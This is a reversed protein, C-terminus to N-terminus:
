FGIVAKLLTVILSAGGAVIAWFASVRLKELEEVRRELDDMESRYIEKSTYINPIRDKLENLSQLIEIYNKNLQELKYVLLNEELNDGGKHSHLRCM